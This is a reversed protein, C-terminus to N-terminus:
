VILASLMIIVVAVTLFQSCCKSQRLSLAAGDTLVWLVEKCYPPYSQVTHPAGSSGLSFM